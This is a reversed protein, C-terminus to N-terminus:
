SVITTYHCVQETGRIIVFGARYSSTGPGFIDYNFRHIRDGDKFNSLFEKFEPCDILLIPVSENYDIEEKIASEPIQDIKSM